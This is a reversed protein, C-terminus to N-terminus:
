KILNLQNTLETSNNELEEFKLLTLAHPRNFADLDHQLRGWDLKINYSQVQDQFGYRKITRTFQCFVTYRPDQSSTIVPKIKWDFFSTARNKICDQVAADFLYNAPLKPALLTPHMLSKANERASRISVHDFSLYSECFDRSYYVLQRNIIEMVINTSAVAGYTKGTSSDIVAIMRPRNQTQWLLFGLFLSIVTLLLMGLRMNLIAKSLSYTFEHDARIPKEILANSEKRNFM